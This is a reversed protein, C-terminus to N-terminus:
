VNDHYACDYCPLPCPAFLFQIRSAFPHPAHLHHSFYLHPQTPLFHGRQSYFTRDDFFLFQPTFILIPTLLYRLLFPLRAPRPPLPSLHFHLLLLHQLLLLLSLFLFFHPLTSHLFLCISIFLPPPSHPLLHYPILYSSLFPSHAM